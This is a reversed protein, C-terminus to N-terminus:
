GFCGLPPGRVPFGCALPTLALLTTAERVPPEDPRSRAPRDHEALLRGVEAAARLLLRALLYALLGFPLQLALGLLFTPELAATWPFGGDHLFRELHEQLAFVVFPLAGFVGTRPACPATGRSAREIVAGTLALLVIAGGIAAALPAYAFYAHGTSALLHAREHADPEVFWYDLLHAAQSGAVVLPLALLWTLARRM